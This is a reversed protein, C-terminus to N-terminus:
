QEAKALAEIIAEKNVPEVTMSFAAPRGKFISALLKNQRNFARCFRCIAFHQWLAFRQSASLKGEEKKSIYDVVQKCSIGM